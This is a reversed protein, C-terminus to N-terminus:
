RGRLSLLSTYNDPVSLQFDDTLIWSM